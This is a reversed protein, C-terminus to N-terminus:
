LPAPQCLEFTLVFKRPQLIKKVGPMKSGTTMFGKTLTYKMGTGPLIMYGEAQYAERYIEQANMWDDYMVLSPSDAQYVVNIATPYPVYGGSLKGDVGMEVQVPNVDDAAFADDTAYGQQIQPTDYLGPIALAFVSNAATLTSM